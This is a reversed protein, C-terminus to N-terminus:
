LLAELSRNPLMEADILNSGYDCAAANIDRKREQGSGAYLLLKPQAPVAHIEISARAADLANLVLLSALQDLRRLRCRTMSDYRRALRQASHEGIPLWGTRREVSYEGRRLAAHQEIGTEKM